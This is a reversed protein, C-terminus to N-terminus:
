MIASFHAFNHDCMALRFICRVCACRLNWCFPNAGACRLDHRSNHVEMFIPALHQFLIKWGLWGHLELTLFIVIMTLSKGCLILLPMHLGKKLFKTYEMQPEIDAVQLLKLLKVNKWQFHFCNDSLAKNKKTFTQSVVLLKVQFFLYTVISCFLADFLSYIKVKVNQHVFVGNAM